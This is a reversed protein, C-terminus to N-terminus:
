DVLVHIDTHPRLTHVYTHVRIDMRVCVDWGKGRGGADRTLFFLCMACGSASPQSKTQESALTPSTQPRLDQGTGREKEQLM